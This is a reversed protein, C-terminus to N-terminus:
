SGRAVLGYPALVLFLVHNVYFVSSSCVKISMEKM